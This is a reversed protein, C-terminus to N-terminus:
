WSKAWIGHRMSSSGSVNEEEGCSLLKVNVESDSSYASESIDSYWNEQLLKCLVKEDSVHM